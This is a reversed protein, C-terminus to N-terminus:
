PKLIAHRRAELVMQFREFDDMNDIDLSRERPMVFGVTSTSVFRRTEVMWNVSAMYIAGNLAYCAPLDQRRDYGDHFEILRNLKNNSDIQYMWYPNESVPCISVCSAAGKKRLLDFAADIDVATRLPSTPQLLMVYDYGPLAQLAHLVVEMSTATDTALASPRKFPVDCGYRQATAIIEDDESSLVVRTVCKADLAAEITWAILPKGGAQLINKRPLGKSGGRAPIIALLKPNEKNM